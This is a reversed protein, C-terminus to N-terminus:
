FKYALTYKIVLSKSIKLVQYPKEQTLGKLFRDKMIGFIKQCQYVKLYQKTLLSRPILVLKEKLLLNIQRVHQGFQWGTRELVEHLNVEGYYVNGPQDFDVKHGDIGGNILREYVRNGYDM